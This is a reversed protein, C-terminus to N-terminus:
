YFWGATYEVWNKLILYEGWLLIITVLIYRIISRESPDTFGSM